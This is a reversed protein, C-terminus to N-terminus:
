SLDMMKDKKLERQLIGVVEEKRANKVEEALDMVEQKVNILARVDRGIKSM